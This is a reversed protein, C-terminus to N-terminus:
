HLVPSLDLHIHAFLPQISPLPDNCIVSLLACRSRGCWATALLLPFAGAHAPAAALYRVRGGERPMPLDAVLPSASAAVRAYMIVGPRYEAGHPSPIM